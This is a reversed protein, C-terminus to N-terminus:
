GVGKMGQAGKALATAAHAGKKLRRAAQRLPILIGDRPRPSTVGRVRSVVCADGPRCDHHGFPDARAVFTLKEARKARANSESVCLRQVRQLESTEALM